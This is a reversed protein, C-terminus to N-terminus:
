IRWFYIYFIMIFVIIVVSNVIDWYNKSAIIEFCQCKSVIGATMGSLSDHQKKRTINSVIIM